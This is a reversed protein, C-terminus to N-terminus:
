AVAVPATPWPMWAIPPCDKTFMEWRQEDPLWKSVAVTGSSGLAFLKVHKFSTVEYPGDKGTRSSTVAEGRPASAMDYNWVSGYGGAAVLKELEQVRAWADKRLQELRQSYKDSEEVHTEPFWIGQLANACEVLREPGGDILMVDNKKKDLIHVVGDIEALHFPGKPTHESV